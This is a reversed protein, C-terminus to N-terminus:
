LIPNLPLTLTVQFCDNIALTKCSAEMGFYLQLRHRINDMAMRNGSVGEASERYPNEIILMIRSSKLLMRIQIQGGEVSPEIGHRIANEILPQILLTPIKIGPLKEPLDWEVRLRERLRYKEIRLYQQCLEIEKQLSVSMQTQLASRFLDSLDILTQEAAKPDIEILSVITNISNFLFHPEIRAQLAEIRAHMEAQERNVLQQQLYLYRLFVGSIIAAVAMARLFEIEDFGSPQIWAGAALVVASICLCITYAIVGSVTPSQHDLFTQLKCLALATSLLAWQTALSIMALANWSFGDSSMLSLTLALLEGVLVLFFVATPKCLDPLFSFNTKLETM